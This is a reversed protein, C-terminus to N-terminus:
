EKKIQNNKPEVPADTEPEDLDLDPLPSQMEEGTPDLDIQVMQEEQEAKIRAIEEDAQAESIGYLM